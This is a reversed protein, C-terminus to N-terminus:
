VSKVQFKITVKSNPTFYRNDFLIQLIRYIFIHHHIDTQEDIVLCISSRRFSFKCSSEKCVLNVCMLM